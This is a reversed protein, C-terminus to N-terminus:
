IPMYMQQYIDKIQAFKEEKLFIDIVIMLEDQLYKVAYRDPTRAVCQRATAKRLVGEERYIIRLFLFLLSIKMCFNFYYREIIKVNFNGIYFAM